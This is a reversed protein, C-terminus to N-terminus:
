KPKVLYGAVRWKGDQDRMLFVTEAASPMSQFASNYVAVVYEATPKNPLGKKYQASALKRSKLSGLSARAKSLDEAWKDKTISSKLYQSAEDWSQAYKGGDVIALWQKASQRAMVEAKQQAKATIATGCLAVAMVVMLSKRM